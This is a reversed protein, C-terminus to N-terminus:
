KKWTVSFSVYHRDFERNSSASGVIDPHLERGRDATASLTASWAPNFTHTLSATFGYVADHRDAPLYDADISRVGLRTSWTDNFSHKWSLQHHSLMFQNVGTTSVTRARSSKLQIEDKPTPTWALSLETFLDTQTPPAAYIAPDDSYVHRSWGVEGNLRLTSGLRVDGGLVIRDYHNSAHRPSAPNGDRDQFQYGHRYGLYLEPGREGEGFRRGLDLGGQIDYRDVYNCGSVPATRMDWYALRGLARVFGASFDHRLALDTKNQFQERRERPIATSFAGGHGPGYDTGEKDGFIYTLETATSWSTAGAKRAWTGQLSHKDHDERSADFYRTLSPSYALHLGPAAQLALRASLTSYPSEITALPGSDVGYVNDDYGVLASLSTQVRPGALATGAGLGLALAFTSLALRSDSKM